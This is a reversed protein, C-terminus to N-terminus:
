PRPRANRGKRRKRTEEKHIAELAALVQDAPIGEEIETYKQLDTASFARRAKAYITKLDDSKKVQLRPIRGNKPEAM